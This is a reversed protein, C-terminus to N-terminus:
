WDVKRKDCFYPKALLPPILHDRIWPPLMRVLMYFCIADGGVIMQHVAHKRLVAARMEQQVITADWMVAQPLDVGNHHFGKFYETSVCTHAKIWEHASGNRRICSVRVKVMNKRQLQQCHRGFALPKGVWVAHWHHKMFRHTSPWLRSVLKNWKWDFAILSPKLLLNQVTILHIRPVLSLVQWVLWILLELTMPAELKVNLYPYSLKPPEYWAM